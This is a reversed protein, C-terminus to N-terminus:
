QVLLTITGLEAFDFEYQGVGGSIMKGLAGTILLQGQEITWGNELSTNVLWLLAQWQDGMADSGQGSVLVQGSQKISVALQNIEVSRVPVVAGYAFQKAAVNNAIIDAAKLAAPNDFALDPLEIVPVLETFLSQLQVINDLPATIAQNAIFGLEAELMLNNFVKSDVIVMGNSAAQGGSRLVGAVPHSVTFKQQAATSTLGAKFGLPRQGRLVNTVALTQIRYAQAVTIPQTDSLVTGPQNAIMATTVQQALLQDQAPHPQSGEPSEIASCASFLGSGAILAWIFVDYCKAKIKIVRMM